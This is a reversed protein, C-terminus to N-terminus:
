RGVFRGVQRHVQRDVPRGVQRGVWYYYCHHYYYYYHDYYDYDDYYYSYPTGSLKRVSTTLQTVSCGGCPLRFGTSFIMRAKHAMPFKIEIVFCM